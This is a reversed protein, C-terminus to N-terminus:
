LFFTYMKLFHRKSKLSGTDNTIPFKVYKKYYVSESCVIAQKSNKSQMSAEHEHFSNLIRHPYPTYLSFSSIYIQQLLGFGKKLHKRSVPKLNKFDKYYKIKINSRASFISYFITDHHLESAVFVVYLIVLVESSQCWYPPSYNISQFLIECYMKIHEM